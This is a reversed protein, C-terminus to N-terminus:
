LAKWGRGPPFVQSDARTAWSWGVGVGLTLCGFMAERCAGAVAGRQPSAGVPAGDIGEGQTHGGSLPSHILRHPRLLTLAPCPFCLTSPSGPSPGPLPELGVVGWLGM